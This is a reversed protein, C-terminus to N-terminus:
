PRQPARVAPPDPLSLQAAAAQRRTRPPGARGPPASAAPASPPRIADAAAAATAARGVVRDPGVKSPRHRPHQPDDPPVFARKGTGAVLAWGLRTKLDHHFECLPDLEALRTHQTKAWDERHDWEIRRRNCGLVSCTPNMWLLAARQAATPGRGLHTVNLVDLGDTIVLKVIAEGLLGRAVSVPVPGVGAIGCMEEGEVRGRRLAEVDVRLLALYRPNVSRRAPPCNSGSPLRGAAFIGPQGAADNDQTSGAPEASGPRPSPAGDEARYGAGNADGDAARDAMAILANFGYADPSERRGARRAAAFFQEIIPDIVANFAAGAQPTGKAHM